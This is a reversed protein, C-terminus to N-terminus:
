FVLVYSNIKEQEQIKKSRRFSDILKNNAVRLLWATPNQPVEQYGWVQMAKLFADQVVDEIKELNNPGFKHVM